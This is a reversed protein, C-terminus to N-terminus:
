WYYYGAEGRKVLLRIINTPDEVGLPHFMKLVSSDDKRLRRLGTDDGASYGIAPFLAHLREKVLKGLRPNGQIRAAAAKADMTLRMHEGAIGPLTRADPRATQAFASEWGSPSGLHREATQGRKLLSPTFALSIAKLSDSVHMVTHFDHRLRVAEKFLRAIETLAIADSTTPRLDQPIDRYADYAM